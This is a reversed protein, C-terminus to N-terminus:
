LVCVQRFNIGLCNYGCVVGKINELCMEYKDQKCDAGWINKKASLGPFKKVKLFCM